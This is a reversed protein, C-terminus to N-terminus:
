EEPRVGERLMMQQVEEPTMAPANIDIGMRTFAADILPLLTRPDAYKAPDLIIEDTNRAPDARRGDATAKLEDLAASVEALEQQARALKEKLDEITTTM